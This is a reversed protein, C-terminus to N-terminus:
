SLLLCTLFPHPMGLLFHGPRGHEGGPSRGTGPRLHPLDSRRPLATTVIARTKGCSEPSPPTWENVLYQSSAGKMSLVAGDGLCLLSIM